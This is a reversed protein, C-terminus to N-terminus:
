ATRLALLYEVLYPYQNGYKFATKIAIDVPLLYGVVPTVVAVFLLCFAINLISTASSNLMQSIVIKM